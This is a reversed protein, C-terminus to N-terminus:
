SKEVKCHHLILIRETSVMSQIRLKEQVLSIHCLVRQHRQAAATLRLEWDAVHDRTDMVSVSLAM